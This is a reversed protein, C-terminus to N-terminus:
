SHRTGDDSEEDSQTWHREMEILVSSLGVTASAAVALCAGIVRGRPDELPATALRKCANFPQIAQQSLRPITQFIYNHDGVM